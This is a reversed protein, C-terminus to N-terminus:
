LREEGPPPTSTSRTVEADTFCDSQILARTLRLPRPPHPPCVPGLVLTVPPGRPALPFARWTLHGESKVAGLLKGRQTRVVSTM